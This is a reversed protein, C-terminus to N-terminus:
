PATKMEEVLEVAGRICQMCKAAQEPRERMSAAVKPDSLDLGDIIEKCNLTGQIQEFRTLFQQVLSLPKFKAEMGCAGSPGHALGIAVVGGTAAGCINGSLGIGGGFGFSLRMAAALELGHEDCFVSLVAQSCLLGSTFRQVALDAKTESTM